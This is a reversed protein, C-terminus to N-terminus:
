IEKNYIEEFHECVIIFQAKKNIKLRSILQLRLNNLTNM